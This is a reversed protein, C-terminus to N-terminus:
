SSLCALSNLDPECYSVPAMLTMLTTLTVSSDRHKQDFISNKIDSFKVVQNTPYQFGQVQLAPISILEIETDDEHCQLHLLPVQQSSPRVSLVYWSKM